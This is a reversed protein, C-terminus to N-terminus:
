LGFEERRLGLAMLGTVSLLDRIRGDLAMALAEELPLRRIRIAETDEFEPPGEVLDRALYVCGREDTVSNSLDVELLSDFRGARLGTEERLERRAGELPDQDLPQGGMPIEWSYHDLAYRYQGVLWTHGAEDVPIIGVARNRFRVLGYIGEGGAPNLVRDERVRIWPNEYVLRTSLTTWPSVTDSM